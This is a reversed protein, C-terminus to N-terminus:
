MSLATSTSNPMMPKRSRPTSRNGLTSMGTTVMVVMWGPALGDTTSALMVLMMSRWTLLTGPMLFMRDLEVGPTDTTAM